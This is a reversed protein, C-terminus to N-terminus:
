ATLIGTLYPHSLVPLLNPLNLMFWPFEHISSIPQCQYGWGMLSALYWMYIHKLKNSIVPALKYFKKCLSINSIYTVLKEDDM